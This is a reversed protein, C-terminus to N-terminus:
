IHLRWVGVFGMSDVHLQRRNSYHVQGLVGLHRRLGSGQGPNRRTQVLKLELNRRELARHVVWGHHLARRPQAVAPDRTNYKKLNANRTRAQDAASTSLSPYNGEPVTRPPCDLVSAGSQTLGIQRQYSRCQTKRAEERAGGLVPLLLGVLLAIIVMVVLLEILTFGRRKM